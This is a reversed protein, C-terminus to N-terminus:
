FARLGVAFGPGLRIKLDGSDWSREAGGLMSVRGDCCPDNSVSVHVTPGVFIALKPLAQWGVLLRLETLESFPSSDYRTIDPQMIHAMLDVDVFFMRIPFHAGLGFGYSWRIKDHIPDIGAGFIGYARKSGLKMGLNFPMLDSGYVELTHTGDKILSLLGIAAGDVSRAINVFGIQAGDVRDAINIFGLQAGHVHGGVNIFGFQVGYVEGAQSLGMSLQMGSMQGGSFAALAALQVGRFNSRVVDMASLHFGWSQGGVLNLGATMMFGASNGGVINAASALQIGLSSGGVVNVGMALQIGLQSGGVSNYAGSIQIGLSDETQTNAFVGLELGRLSTSRGALLNLSFNNLVRRGYLTNISLTPIVGFNAPVWRVDQGLGRLLTREGTVKALLAPMLTGTQGPALDIQTEYIRGDREVTVQYPGPELALTIRSGGLKTLEATLSGSRSRVYLRGQLERPLELRASPDRLDTMVVDGTGALQIDYAPHQAGSLTKETRALTENFAFNYAENLTVRGDGSVDAAGRLGSILYHTFFSSGIRDSEQAAENASSSALFAHGSVRVSTDILFPPRQVGGKLRTFSGASCSDLIAITVDAAARDISARLVSYPLREEGLLLGSDDSHGSYYFLLEVRRGPGRATAIRAGLQELATVLAAPNPELLLASDQSPIGGLQALVGSMARADSGAYHLRERSSGGNNAGVILAFRRLATASTEAGETAAMAPAAAWLVLLLCALAQRLGPRPRTRVLAQGQAQPSM